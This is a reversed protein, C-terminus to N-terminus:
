CATKIATKTLYKRKFKEGGKETFFSSISYRRCQYNTARCFQANFQNRQRNPSIKKTSLKFDLRKIVTVFVQHFFCVAKVARNKNKIYIRYNSVPYFISIFLITPSGNGFNLIKMYHIPSM